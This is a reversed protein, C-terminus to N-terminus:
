PHVWKEFCGANGTLWGDVWGSSMKESWYDETERANCCVLQSDSVSPIQDLSNLQAQPSQLTCLFLSYASSELCAELVMLFQGLDPFTPYM